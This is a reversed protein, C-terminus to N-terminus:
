ANARLGRAAALAEAPTIVKDFGENFLKAKVVNATMGNKAENAIRVSSDDAGAQYKSHEGTRSPDM